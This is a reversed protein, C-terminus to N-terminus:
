SGSSLVFRCHRPTNNSSILTVLNQGGIDDSDVGMKFTVLEHASSGGADGGLEMNCEEANSM